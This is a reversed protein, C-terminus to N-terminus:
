YHMGITFGTNLRRGGSAATATITYEFVNLGSALVSYEEDGVVKYFLTYDLM